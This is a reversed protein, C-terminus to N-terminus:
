GEGGGVGAIMADAERGRAVVRGAPQAPAGRVPVDFQTQIERNPFGRRDLTTVLALQALNRLLDPIQICAQLIHPPLLDKLPYTNPDWSVTERELASKGKRSSLGM